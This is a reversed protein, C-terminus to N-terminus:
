RRQVMIGALCSGLVQLPHIRFLGSVSAVGAVATGLGSGGSATVFLSRSIVKANTGTVIQDATAGGIAIHTIGAIAAVATGVDM